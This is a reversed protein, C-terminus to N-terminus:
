LQVMLPNMQFKEVKTNFRVKIERNFVRERPNQYLKLIKGM